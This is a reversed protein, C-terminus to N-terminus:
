QESIAVKAAGELQIKQYIRDIGEIHQWKKVEDSQSEAIIKKWENLM